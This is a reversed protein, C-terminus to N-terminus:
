GAVRGLGDSIDNCGADVVNVDDDGIGAAKSLGHGREFGDSGIVHSLREM